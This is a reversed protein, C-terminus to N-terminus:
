QLTETVRTITNAPYNMSFTSPDEKAVSASGAKGAAASNPSWQEYSASAVAQNAIEAAQDKNDFNAVWLTSGAPM